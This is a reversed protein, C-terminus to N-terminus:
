GHFPQLADESRSANARAAGCFIEYAFTADADVADGDGLEAGFRIRDSRLYADVTLQEFGLTRAVDQEVLRAAVDCRGLILAIPARHHIEDRHRLPDVRHAAEITVGFTQEEQGIVTVNRVAHHVRLIPEILLVVDEGQGPGGLHRKLAKAVSNRDLALSDNRCLYPDDPLRSFTEHDLNDHVLPDVVEHAPHHVLDADWHLAQSTNAQAREAHCPNLRADPPLQSM